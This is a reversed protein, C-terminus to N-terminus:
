INEYDRRKLNTICSFGDSFIWRYSFGKKILINRGTSSKMEWGERIYKEITKKQNNTCFSPIDENM